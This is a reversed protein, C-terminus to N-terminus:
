GQKHRAYHQRAKYRNGCSKMSCWRRRHSKDRFLWGCDEAACTRVAGWDESTLLEATAQAVPWLMRDLAGTEAQWRWQFGEATVAVQWLVRGQALARNLTDM